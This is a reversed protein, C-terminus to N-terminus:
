DWILKEIKGERRPSLQFKVRASCEEWKSLRGPVPVSSDEAQDAYARRKADGRWSGGHSSDPGWDLQEGSGQPWEVERRCCGRERKGLSPASSKCVVSDWPGPEM